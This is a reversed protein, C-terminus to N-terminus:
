NSENKESLKLAARALREGLHKAINIEDQSLPWDNAVGSVHTVGYPTGGSVTENLSPESYPVGLLLMGHHLLPLMMSLLTTEQGGHMSASSSFVCAPKDVLDGALWLSSTSDLFYKLPAAMNGFRTPSGLALGQCHRLDDLTVYPAGNDPIAKDVAECTASVPPVTRLRAEIGEVREVGRAIYQALQAVSGTRSYYLVLIYPNSM